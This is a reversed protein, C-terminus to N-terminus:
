IQEDVDQWQKVVKIERITLDTKPKKAAILNFVGASGDEDVAIMAKSASIMSANNFYVLVEDTELINENKYTWSYKFGDNRTVETWADMPVAVNTALVTGTVNEVNAILALITTDYSSFKEDVKAASYSVLTKQEETPNDEIGVTARAVVEIFTQVDELYYRQIALIADRTWNFDDATFICKLINPNSEKLANCAALNGAAFYENYQQVVPMIVADVDSKRIVSDESVPFSTLPLDIYTETKPEIVAM